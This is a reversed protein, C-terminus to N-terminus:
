RHRKFLCLCTRVQPRLSIKFSLIPEWPPALQAPVCCIVSWQEMIGVSGLCPLSACRWDRVSLCNARKSAKQHAFPCTSCCGYRQSVALSSLFGCQGRARCLGVTAAPFSSPYKWNSHVKLWTNFVTNDTTFPMGAKSAQAKQKKVQLNVTLSHSKWHGGEVLSFLVM